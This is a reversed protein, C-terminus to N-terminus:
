VYVTGTVTNHRRECGQTENVIYISCKFLKKNSNIISTDSICSKARFTKATSYFKM